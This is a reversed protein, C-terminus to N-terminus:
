QPASAIAILEIISVTQSTSTKGTASDLYTATIWVQMNERGFWQRTMQLVSGPIQLIQTSGTPTVNTLPQVVESSDLSDIRYTIGTPTIPAQSSDLFTMSLFADSGAYSTHRTYPLEPISQPWAPGRPM